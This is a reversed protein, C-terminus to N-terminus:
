SMLSKKQPKKKLKIKKSKGKGRNLNKKEKTIIVDTLRKKTHEHKQNEIVQKMNQAALQKKKFFRHIFVPHGDVKFKQKQLAMDCAEASDFEVFGSGSCEGTESNRLLRIGTVELDAFADIIDKEMANPPLNRLHVCHNKFKKKEALTVILSGDHWPPANLNMAKVAKLASSLSDYRIYYSGTDLAKERGEKKFKRRLAFTNKENACVFPHYSISKIEGFESFAKKVQKKVDKSIASGVFVVNKMDPKNKPKKKANERQTIRNRPKSGDNSTVKPTETTEESEKKHIKESPADDHNDVATRKKTPLTKNSIVPKLSPTFAPKSVKKIAPKKPIPEGSLIATLAGPVYDTM